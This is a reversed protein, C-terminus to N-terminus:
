EAGADRPWGPGPRPPRQARVHARHARRGVHRRPRAPHRRTRSPPEPAVISSAEGSIPMCWCRLVASAMAAATSNCCRCPKGTVGAAMSAPTRWRRQGPRRSRKEAVPHIPNEVHRVIGGARPRQAASQAIRKPSSSSRGHTSTNLQRRSLGAASSACIRNGKNLCTIKAGMWLGRAM